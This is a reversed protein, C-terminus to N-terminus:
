FLSSTGRIIPQKKSKRLKGLRGGQKNFNGQSAKRYDEVLLMM